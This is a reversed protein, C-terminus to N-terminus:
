IHNYIKEGNICISFNAVDFDNDKVSNIHGVKVDGTINGVLNVLENQPKEKEISEVVIGEDRM